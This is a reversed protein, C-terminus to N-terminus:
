ECLSKFYNAVINGQLKSDFNALMTKRGNEGILRAAEYNEIIESLAMAFKSNDGPPVVFANTENLYEPIDGVATVVVPNSTALYEGLKTPFGGQSQLSDPRALAMISADKLLQPIQDRDAKGFLIINNLNLNNVYSKITDFEEKTNTGGILVLRWDSYKEAIISFSDILNYVGDKNGSMNGCYVIYRGFKTEKKPIDFRDTDVTMPVQIMRCKRSVKNKFYDKLPRTMVIMGDLHKYVTNVYLYSYIRGKKSKDRLCFPYESKEQVVKIGKIRCLFKITFILILNNTILYVADYKISNIRRLMSALAKFMAGASRSNNDTPNFHYFHMGDIEGEKEYIATASSLIDVDIGNRVLEKGLSLFRNVSANGSPVPLTNIIAIRM